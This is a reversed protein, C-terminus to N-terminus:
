KCVGSFLDWQVAKNQSRIPIKVHLHLRACSGGHYLRAGPARHSIHGCIWVQLCRPLVIKKLHCLFLYIGHCILFNFGVSFMGFNKGSCKRVSCVQVQLLETTLLDVVPQVFVSSPKSRNPTGFLMPCM